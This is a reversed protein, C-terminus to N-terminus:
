GCLTGVEQSRPGRLPSVYRRAVPHPISLRGLCRGQHKRSHAADTSQPKCTRDTARPAERPRCVARPERRVSSSLPLARLDIL